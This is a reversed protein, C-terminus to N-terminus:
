VAEDFNPKNANAFHIDKYFTQANMNLKEFDPLPGDEELNVALYHGKIFKEHAFVCSLHQWKAVSFPNIGEYLLSYPSNLGYPSCKLEGNRVYIVMSSKFNTDSLQFLYTYTNSMVEAKKSWDPRLWFEVSYETTREIVVSGLLGAGKGAFYIQNAAPDPCSVGNWVTQESEITGHIRDPDYSVDSPVKDYIIEFETDSDRVLFM